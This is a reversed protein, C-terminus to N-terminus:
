RRVTPARRRPGFYNVRLGLSAASRAQAADATAIPLAGMAAVALHLADLTRLSVDFGSIWSRATQYTARDLELRTYAGGELHGIFVAAIRRADERPLERERVKRALASFFEVEGLDSLAIAPTERLFRQIRSSLPEPFYYPVLVSTDVYIL